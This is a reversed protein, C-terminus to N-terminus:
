PLEVVAVQATAPGSIVIYGNDEGSVNKFRGDDLRIVSLTSAPIEYAELDKVGQIGNGAKVTVAAKSTATNNVLILRKCDANAAPVNVGTTAGNVFTVDGWTNLTLAKAEIVTKAM